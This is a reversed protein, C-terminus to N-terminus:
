CFEDFSFDAVDTERDIDIQMLILVGISVYGDIRVSTKLEANRHEVTLEIHQYEKACLV